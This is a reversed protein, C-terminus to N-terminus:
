QFLIKHAKKAIMSRNKEDSLIMLDWDPIKRMGIAAAVPTYTTLMKVDDDEIVPMDIEKIRPEAALLDVMPVDIIVHGEPISLEDEFRAEMSRRFNNDELQKLLEMRKENRKQPPMVYVQKFLRRYKLRTIIEHQFGGKGKMMEILEADTLRFFDFPHMDPISEMAKSLMLEAIRVTKHFYVSSYMLARAMLINEVVGVGKRNLALHNNYIEITQTFRQSDIMGYAVGTYFSDRLLYDIQDVDVVSNLLEGLFPHIKQYGRIIDVINSQEIDSSELITSVTQLQDLVRIEGDQFIDYTGLVLKETLDVHDVNYRERLISELTHSFPGHGIDHLLSACCLYNTIDDSLGLIDAIMSSMHYTGLSHELRTHHAGPFVLHALGLQKISSLRQLEASDLLERFIGNLKIDGHISDRIIKYPKKM